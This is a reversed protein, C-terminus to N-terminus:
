CGHPFATRATRRWVRPTRGQPRRSDKRPRRRWARAFADGRRNSPGHRAPLKPRPRGCRRRRHRGGCRHSQNCVSCFPPRLHFTSLRTRGCVSIRSGSPCRGSRQRVPPVPVLTRYRSPPPLTGAGGCVGLGVCGPSPRQIRRPRCRTAPGFRLRDCKRGRQRRSGDPEREPLLIRASRPPDKCGAVCHSMGGRGDSCEATTSAWPVRSWRLRDEPRGAHWPIDGECYISRPTGVIRTTRTSGFFSPFTPATARAIFFKPASSSTRTFGHGSPTSAWCRAIRPMSIRSVACVTPSKLAANFSASRMTPVEPISVLAFLPKSPDGDSWTVERGPDGFHVSSDREKEAPLVETEEILFKPSAVQQGGNRGRRVVRDEVEGM